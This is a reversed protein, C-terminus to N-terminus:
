ILCAGCVVTGQAVVVGGITLTVLSGMGPTGSVTGTITILSNPTVAPNSITQTGLTTTINLTPAGGDPFGGFVGVVAGGALTINVTGSV